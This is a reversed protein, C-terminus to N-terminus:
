EEAKQKEKKIEVNGTEQNFSRIEVEYEKGSLLKEMLEEVNHHITWKNRNEKEFEVIVDFLPKYKLKRQIKEKQTKINKDGMIVSEIGGVLGVVTQNKELTKVNGHASAYLIIGRQSCEKTAFVEMQTGIEDIILCDPTHNQIAEIMIKEQNKAEPIKMVRADGVSLHPTNGFGSIESSSDVIITRSNTSIYRAIDRIFSTKGSGPAGLFLISKKEDLIDAIVESIGIIPKGVRLTIGVVDGSIGRIVSIRHLYEEIGSRNNPLIPLNETVHDIDEQSVLNDSIIIKKNGYFHAKPVRNFDMEIDILDEINENEFFKLYTDPLIKILKQVEENNIRLKPILFSNIEAIEELPIEEDESDIILEEELKKKELLSPRSLPELNLFNKFSSQIGLEILLANAMADDLACHFIDDIGQHFKCKSSQNLFRSAQREVYVADKTNLDEISQILEYVDIVKLKLDINLKKSIADFTNIEASKGKAYLISIEKPNYEIFQLFENMVVKLSQKALGGMKKIPIGHIKKETYIAAPYLEPELKGPFNIFKQFTDIIKGDKMRSKVCGIEVPIYIDGKSAILEFDISYIYKEKSGLVLIGGKSSGISSTEIKITEEKQDNLKVMLADKSNLKIKFTEPHSKVFNLTGGYNKKIEQRYKEEMWSFVNALFTWDNPFEANIIDFLKSKEVKEIKKEIKPESTDKLKVSYENNSVKKLQFTNSHMEFYNLIKGYKYKIELRIDKEMWRDCSCLNLWEDKTFLKLVKEELNSNIETKKKEEKKIKLVACGGPIVEFHNPFKKLFKTIKIKEKLNNGMKQNLVGINIKFTEDVENKKGHEFFIQEIQAVLKDMQKTSVFCTFKWQFIGDFNLEEVKQKEKKIEVNGTEQNFSRIEVEYEKGSLLKEMLEEVNHHITWKNRNEKEFEVIVDFLPKYKLKRQIKEKQTKINKDGMIVSEIGGVLGVVTQNKELTKVNGHASAYLIIGRQSCEKTAFVEM